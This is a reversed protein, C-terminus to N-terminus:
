ALEFNLRHLLAGNRTKRVFVNRFRMQIGLPGVTRHLQLLVKSALFKPTGDPNEEFPDGPYEDLAAAFRVRQEAMEALVYEKLSPNKQFFWLTYTSNVRVAQPNDSELVRLTVYVGSSDYNKKPHVEILEVLADFPVNYPLLDGRADQMLQRGEASDTFGLIAAAERDEATTTALATGTGPTQSQNRISM